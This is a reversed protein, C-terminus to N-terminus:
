ADAQEFAALLAAIWIDFQDFFTDMGDQGGVALATIVPIAGAKEAVLQVKAVDFYNAAMMVKVNQEEM